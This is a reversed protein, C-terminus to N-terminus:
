RRCAHIIATVLSQLDRMVDIAAFRVVRMGQAILWEDRRDDHEPSEGMSHSEGDVEIVLRRAPCYFDVICRGIPHQRRFKFGDPRQRLAQWLMGEPLTMERRLARARVVTENKDRRLAM